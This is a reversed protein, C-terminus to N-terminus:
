AASHTIVNTAYDQAKLFKNIDRTERGEDMETINKEKKIETENEEKKIPKNRQIMGLGGMMIFDINPSAFEVSQVKGLFM